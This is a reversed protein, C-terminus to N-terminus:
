ESVEWIRYWRTRRLYSTRDEFTYVLASEGVPIVFNSRNMPAPGNYIEEWPHWTQGFDDSYEIRYRLGQVGGAWDFRMLGRVPLPGTLIEFDRYRVDFGGDDGAPSEALVLPNNVVIVRWRGKV